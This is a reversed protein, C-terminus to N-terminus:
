LIQTLASLGISYATGLVLSLTPLTIPTVYDLREILALSPM